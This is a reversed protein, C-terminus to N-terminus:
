SAIELRTIRASTKRVRSLLVKLEPMILPHNGKEEFKLASFFFRGSVASNGRHAVKSQPQMYRLSSFLFPPRAPFLFSLPQIYSHSDVATRSPYFLLFTKSCYACHSKMGRSTNTSTKRGLLLAKWPSQREFTARYSSARGGRIDVRLRHAVPKNEAFFLQWISQRKM